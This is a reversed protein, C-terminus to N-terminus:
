PKMREEGEALRVVLVPVPSLRIIQEAGSGLLMHKVGRRGHTGTVVLDAPWDRAAKAVADGLREGFSGVMVHDAEVGASACIALGANIIDQASDHIAKLLEAPYGGFQDYGLAMATEDAIHILRLRARGGSESAMRTAAVLAKNSTPSGDVAVIIREFM